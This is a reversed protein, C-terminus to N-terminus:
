FARVAKSISNQLQESIQCADRCCQKSAQWIESCNSFELWLDRATSAKDSRIILRGIRYQIAGQNRPQTTVDDRMSQACACFSGQVYIIKILIIFSKALLCNIPYTCTCWDTCANLCKRNIKHWQLTWGSCSQLMASSPVPVNKHSVECTNGWPPMRNAGLKEAEQGIKYVAVPAELGVVSQLNLRGIM